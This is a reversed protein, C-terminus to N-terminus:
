RQPAFHALPAQVEIATQADYATLWGGVYMVQAIGGLPALLINLIVQDRNAQGMMWKEVVVFSPLAVQLAGGGVNVYGHFNM